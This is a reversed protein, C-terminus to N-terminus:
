IQIEAYCESLISFVTSTGEVGGISGGMTGFIFLLPYHRATCIEVNFTPLRGGPPQTRRYVVVATGANHRSSQQEDQEM